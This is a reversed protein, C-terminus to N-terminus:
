RGLTVCVLVVRWMLLCQEFTPSPMCWTCIPHTPVQQWRKKPKGDSYLSLGLVPVFCSMELTILPCVFVFRGPFVFVQILDIITAMIGACVRRGLQGTLGHATAVIGCVSCCCLVPCALAPHYSVSLVAVWRAWNVVVPRENIALMGRTFMLQRVPETTLGAQWFSATMVHDAGGFRQYHINNFLYEYVM